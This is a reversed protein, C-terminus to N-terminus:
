GRGLPPFCTRRKPGVVDREARMIALTAARAKKKKWGLLDLFAKLEVISFPQEFGRTFVFDRHAEFWELVGPLVL